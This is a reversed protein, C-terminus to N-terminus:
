VPTPTSPERRAGARRLAHSRGVVFVGLVVLGLSAAELWISGTSVTIHDDLLLIGLAVGALPQAAATPPLALDLRGLRFAHQSLLVAATASALLLYPWSTKLVAAPASHAMVVIAGRTAADQLAYLIGAAVAIGAVSAALKGRRAAWGAILIVLLATGIAV